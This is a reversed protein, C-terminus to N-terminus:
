LHAEGALTVQRLLEFSDGSHSWLLNALLILIQCILILIQCFDFM